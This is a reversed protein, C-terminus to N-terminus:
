RRHVDIVYGMAQFVIFSIGLPLALQQVRFGEPNLGLDVTIQAIFAAYKYFGLGGFLLLAAVWVSWSSPTRDAMIACFWAVGVFGVLLILYAPLWYGYFALSGALLVARKGRPSPVAWFALLILPLFLGTFVFSNFLM